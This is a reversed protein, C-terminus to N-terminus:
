PLLQRHIIFKRFDFSNTVPDYAEELRSLDVVCFMRYRPLDAARGGVQINGSAQIRHAEHLDFGGWIAFVHSRTTSNNAVKALLRHRTHHDVTDNGFDDSPRAEFLGLQNLNPLTGNSNNKRLITKEVSLAPNVPDIYGLPRFPQALHTGPAQRNGGNVGDRARLLQDVWRREAPNLELIDDTPDRSPDFHDHHLWDDVLGALVPEHRLTNLNIKGPLRRHKAVEYGAVDWNSPPPVDVFNLLRYWRNGIVSLSPLGTTPDLFRVQATRSGTMAGGQVLNGIPGGYFQQDEAATPIYPDNAQTATWGLYGYIPVSLLEVWSSLDRDFHPQWYPYPTGAGEQDIWVQNPSNFEPNPHPAPVPMMRVPFDEHLTHNRYTGAGQGPHDQAIYDYPHLREHSVLNDLWDTLAAQNGSGPFAAYPVDKQFESATVKIRDVEIWEDGQGVGQADLHRRRQLVLYFDDAPDGVVYQAVLSTPTPNGPFTSTPDGAVFRRYGPDHEPLAASGSPTLDLSLRSPPDQNNDTVEAAPPQPKPIILQLPDSQTDSNINVYFDSGISLGAGNVVNNDHCGIIFNSGPDITRYDGIARERFEVAVDTIEPTVGVPVRAIRWSENKLEVPFPSLNRLEVYLFRHGDPSSSEDHLTRGNDSSDPDSEILLVESFALPQSEVGYVTGSPSADWGDSLNDDYIFKTIVDDRDLADVYNVAFQAMERAIEPGIPTTTVDTGDPNDNPALQNPDYGAVTYLLVYIDRALRQRDYQAWWEQAYPDSAILDLTPYGATNWAAADIVNDQPLPITLYNPDGPLPNGSSDVLELPHPVLDRYEPNSQADFADEGNAITDDSLIRNLNLKQQPRQNDRDAFASRDNLITLLRRVEPRYPDATSIIGQEHQSPPIRAAIPGFSPPFSNPVDPDTTPNFEWQRYMDSVFPSFSLENRDWSDTTFQSRILAAQRNYQFNWPALNRLRSVLSLQRWDGDSLHLAAIEDPTFRSDFQNPFSLNPNFENEENVLGDISLPQLSGSGDSIADIYTRHLTNGDAMIQGQNQWPAAGPYEPWQVPTDPIGGSALFREGEFIPPMPTATQHVVSGNAIQQNGVGIYDLPHVFPPIDVQLRSQANPTRIMGGGRTAANNNSDVDDDPPSGSGLIAGPVPYRGSPTASGENALGARLQGDDFGYRGLWDVNSAFALTTPEFEPRGLLMSAHEINATQLRTLVNAAPAPYPITASSRDAAMGRIAVAAAAKAEPSQEVFEGTSPMPNLEAYLAILPNVESPSMGLNSFHAWDSRNLIQERISAVGGPQNNNTSRLNFDALNGHVNTNLLADQDIIKWFYIPVVQRGGPLDIMPHDLDIAISDTIGDGDLDADLDYTGTGDYVGMSNEGDIQGNNLAPDYYGDEGPDLTGNGNLDESDGNVDVRFPFPTILRNRDGSEAVRGGVASIYRRDGNMYEHLLHPRLVQAETQANTYWNRFNLGPFYGPLAFSPKVVRLESVPDIYDMSLFLSNIDPYTYGAAPNFGLEPTTTPDIANGSNAIASYNLVFDAESRSTTPDGDYNVDFSNAGTPVITIGQGSYFNATGPQGTTSDIPGVVHGLMSWRSYTDGFHLASNEFQPDTKVLVQELGFDFIPDPDIELPKISAFADAIAKEQTSFNFIFLGIIVLTTTLAVVMIIVAGGRRNSNEVSEGVDPAAFLNKSNANSSDRRVRQWRNPILRM